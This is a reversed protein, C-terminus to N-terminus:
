RFLLYLGSLPILLGCVIGFTIVVLAAALRPRELECELIMGLVFTCFATMTAGMAIYAVAVRRRDGLVVAVLFSTLMCTLCAAAIRNSTRCSMIM